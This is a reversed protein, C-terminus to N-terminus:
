GLGHEGGGLRDRRCGAIQAGLDLREQVLDRDLHTVINRAKLLRAISVSQRRTATAANTPRDALRIATRTSRRAWTRLPEVRARDIAAHPAAAPKLMQAVCKM